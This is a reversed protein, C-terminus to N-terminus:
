IKHKSFHEILVTSTRERSARAYEDFYKLLTKGTTKQREFSEKIAKEGFKDSWSSFINLNFRDYLSELNNGRDSIRLYEKIREAYRQMESSELITKEPNLVSSLTKEKSAARSSAFLFAAQALPTSIKFAKDAGVHQMLLQTVCYSVYAYAEFLVDDDFVFTCFEDAYEKSKKFDSAASIAVDHISIYFKVWEPPVGERALVRPLQARVEFFFLASTNIPVKQEDSSPKPIKSKEEAVIATSAIAGSSNAQSLYHAILNCIKAVSNKEPMNSDFFKNGNIYVAKGKAVISNISSIKESVGDEFLQKSYIADDTILMGEAGGGFVTDDILAIIEAPNLGKAYAGIAGQVKKQPINPAMFVCRDGKCIDRNIEFMERITRSM